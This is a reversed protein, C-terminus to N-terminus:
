YSKCILSFENEKRIYVAEYKLSSDVSFSLLDQALEERCDEVLFLVRYFRRSNNFAELRKVIENNLIFSSHVDLGVSTSFGLASAIERVDIVGYERLFPHSKKLEKKNGSSIWIEM